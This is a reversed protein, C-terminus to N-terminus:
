IWLPSSRGRLQADLGSEALVLYTDRHHGPGEGVVVNRAGLNRFAEAAPSV